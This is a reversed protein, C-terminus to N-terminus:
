IFSSYVHYLPVGFIVAVSIRVIAAIEADSKYFDKGPRPIAGKKQVVKKWEADWDVSTEVPSPIDEPLAFDSYLNESGGADKDKEGFLRSSSRAVISRTSSDLSQPAQIMWGNVLVESPFSVLLCFLIVVIQYFM